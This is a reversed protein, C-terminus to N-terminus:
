QRRAAVAIRMLARACIVTNPLAANKCKIEADTLLVLANRVHGSRWQTLQARFTAQAPGFVPPRLSKIITTADLGSALLSTALDLRRLHRSLARLVGIPATGERYVHDLARDVVDSRGQLVANVLIELSASTADDVCTRVIDLTIRTKQGANGSSAYLDIKNFAAEIQKRDRGIHSILWLGADHDIEIDNKHSYEHMFREIDADSDEYCPIAAALKSHEFLKRLSSRPGLAGADVVVLMTDVAYELFTEIVGAVQDSARRIRMVRRGGLLSLASTEDHFLAPDARFRQADFETFRFPDKDDDLVSRVCLDSRVRVLGDNVGYILTAQVDAPLSRCYREAQGAAIKM